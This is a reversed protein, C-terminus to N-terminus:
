AFTPRRSGGPAALAARKKVPPPTQIAPIDLAAKTGRVTTHAVIWVMNVAIPAGAVSAPQFRAWSVDGLLAEARKADAKNRSGRAAGGAPTARLLELNAVRGERTVVAALAYEAEDAGAGATAFFLDDSVVPRPMTVDPYIGVPNQNSGPSAKGPSTLLRVMAVLSDPKEATALRMMGLMVVVCVMAALAAGMGAYVLHMDEFMERVQAQLSMREEAKVRSLIAAQFAADEHAALATRGRSSARLAQRIMRLEAFEAACRGCWELHAGVAIQDAVALEGDHFSALRRRTAACTLVKM